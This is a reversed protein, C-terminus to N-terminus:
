IHSDDLIPGLDCGPLTLVDSYIFDPDLLAIPLEKAIAYGIELMISRCDQWGDQQVVIMGEAAELLEFGFAYRGSEPICAGVLPPTIIVPSLPVIRPYAKIVRPYIEIMEKVWKQTQAPDNATYPSSLYYRGQVDSPLLIAHHNILSQLETM